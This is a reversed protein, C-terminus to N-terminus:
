NCTHCQSRTGIMAKLIPNDPFFAMHNLLWRQCEKRKYAATLEEAIWDLFRNPALGGHLLELSENLRKIKKRKDFIALCHPWHLETDKKLGETKFEKERRKKLASELQYIRERQDIITQSQYPHKGHQMDFIASEIETFHRGLLSSVTAEIDRSFGLLMEDLLTRHELVRTDHDNKFRTALEKKM